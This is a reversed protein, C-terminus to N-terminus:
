FGLELRLMFHRGAQPYYFNFRQEEGGWIWAYTYGNTEYSADFLNFLQLQISANKVGRLFNLDYNLVLDHIFYPDISRSNLGSNDLYQRSVFKSVFSVDLDGLQQM